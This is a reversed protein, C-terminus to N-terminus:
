RCKEAEELLGFDTIYACDIPDGPTDYEEDEALEKSLIFEESIADNAYTVRYIAQYGMHAMMNYFGGDPCAYLTSHGGFTEGIYWAQNDVITYVRWVYDAECTGSLVILEKVGDGDIDYLAYQLYDAHLTVDYQEDHIDILIQQYCDYPNEAAMSAGSGFLGPCLTLALLFSGICRKM